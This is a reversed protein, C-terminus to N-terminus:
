FHEIITPTISHYKSNRSNLLYLLLNQECYFYSIQYFKEQDKQFVKSGENTSLNESQILICMEINLKILESHLIQFEPQSQDIMNIDQIILVIFKKFYKEQFRNLYLIDDVYQKKMDRMHKEIIQNRQDKFKSEMLQFLIAQGNYQGTVEQLAKRVSLYFIEKKRKKIDDLNIQQQIKQQKELFQVQSLKSFSKKTSPPFKDLSKNNNKLDEDNLIKPISNQLGLSILSKSNMPNQKLIQNKTEQSQIQNIYCVRKQYISLNQNGVINAKDLMLQEVIFNKKSIEEQIPSLDIDKEIRQSSSNEVLNAEDISYIQNNLLQQSMQSHNISCMKQNIQQKEDISVEFISKQEEQNTIKIQNKQQKNKLINIDYKLANNNIINEQREVNKFTQKSTQIRPSNQFQNTNQNGGSYNFDFNIIGQETSHNKIALQALSKPNNLQQKQQLNHLTLSRQNYNKSHNMLSHSKIRSLNMQTIQNTTKEENSKMFRISMQKKRNQQHQSIQISNETQSQNIYSNLSSLIINKKLWLQNIMSIHQKIFMDSISSVTFGFYDDDKKIVKDIIAQCLNVVREKSRTGEQNEFLNTQTNQDQLKQAEEQNTFQSKNQIESINQSDSSDLDIHLVCIKFSIDKVFKIYFQEISQHNLQFKEFIKLLRKFSRNFQYPTIINCKEFMETVEVAAEYYNQKNVSDNARQDMLFSLVAEEHIDYTNRDEGFGYLYFNSSNNLKESLMDSQKRNNLKCCTQGQLDNLRKSNTSILFQTDLQALNSKLSNRTKKPSLNNSGRIKSKNTNQIDYFSSQKKRTLHMSSKKRSNLQSSTQKIQKPTFQSLQYSTNEPFFYFKPSKPTNINSIISKRNFFDQNQNELNLNIVFNQFNSKSENQISDQNKEQCKSPYKAFAGQEPSSFKQNKIPSNFELTQFDTQQSQFDLHTKSNNKFFPHFTTNAQNQFSMLYDLIPKQTKLNSHNQIPSLSNLQNQVQNDQNQNNFFNITQENKQTTKDIQYSSCNEITEFITREHAQKILDQNKQDNQQLQQLQLFESDKLVKLAEYLKESNEIVKYNENSSGQNQKVHMMVLNLLVGMKLKLQKNPIAINNLEEVLSEIIDWLWLYQQYQINYYVLSILFNYKRNYLMQNLENQEQQIQFSDDIRHKFLNKFLDQQNQINIQILQDNKSKLKQGVKLLCQKLVNQIKNLYKKGCFVKSLFQDKIQENKSLHEIKTNVTTSNIREQFESMEYKCYIIAQNFNELAELFRSNNFHISGINNYCIGLAKYNKIQSFYKIQKSLEILTLSEDQGFINQTTFILTQFLNQFSQYLLLMDSSLFIQPYDIEFDGSFIGDEFLIMNKTEEDVRIKKLIGTLHEVSCNIMQSLRVSQLLIIIISPSIICYMLLRFTLDVKQIQQGLAVAQSQLQDKSMITILLLNNLYCFQSQNKVTQNTIINKDIVYTFQLTVVMEQQNQYFMFQGIQQKNNLNLIYNKDFSCEELIYNKDFFSQIQKLFEIKQDEELQYLYTENLTHIVKTSIQYNTQYVVSQTIPEILIRQAQNNGLNQFTIINQQLYIGQCVISFVNSNQLFSNELKPNSYKELFSNPTYVKKCYGTSIYPNNDSDYSFLMPFYGVFPFQYLKMSDKFYGQCRSDMNYRSQQCPPPDKINEFTMNAGAGFYMGDSNFATFYSKDVINVINTQKQKLRNAFLSARSFFDTISANRLQDLSLQSLESKNLTDKQHWSSILYSSNKKYLNLLYSDGINNYTNQINLIPSIFKNNVIIQGNLMKTNLNQLLNIVWEEHQINQYLPDLQAKNQIQVLYIEQEFMNSSFEDVEFLSQEYNLNTYILIIVLLLLQPFIAIFIIRFQTRQTIEIIKSKAKILINM